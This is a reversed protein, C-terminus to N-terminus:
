YIVGPHVLSAYDHYTMKVLEDHDGGNFFIIDDKTLDKAVFVDMGYLNGFPPMGGPECDAFITDFDKERALHINRTKFIDMLHMLDIYEDAPIVMMKYSNDIQVIVPKAVMRGPLHTVQATRQASFSQPHNIVEYNVNNKKLFNVMKYSLM